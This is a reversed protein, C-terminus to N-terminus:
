GIASGDQLLAAQLGAPDITITQTRGPEKLILLTAVRLFVTPGNGEIVEEDTEVEYTGAPKEETMGKILFPRRFSVTMRTTRITM